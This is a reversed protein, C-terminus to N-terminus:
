LVRHALCSMGPKLIVKHGQGPAEEKGDAPTPPRPAECLTTAKFNYTHDAEAVAM